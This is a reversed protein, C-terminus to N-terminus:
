PLGTDGQFIDQKAATITLAGDAVELREDDRRIVDWRTDDLEGAEFDDSRPPGCEAEDTVTVTVTDTTTGAEDTVTLTVEYTGAEEYTHTPNAETSSEGDGFDWEYTPADDAGRDSLEGRFNVELPAQGLTPSAQANALAPLGGKRQEIRYI